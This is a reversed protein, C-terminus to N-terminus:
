RSSKKPNTTLYKYLNSSFIDNKNFQADAFLSINHKAFLLLEIEVRKGKAEFIKNLAWGFHKKNPRGNLQIPKPLEPFAGTDFYHMLASVLRQYDTSTMMEKFDVLWDEITSFTFENEQESEAGAQEPVLATVPNIKELEYELWNKYLVYTGYVISSLSLPRYDCCDALYFGAMGGDVLHIPPSTYDCCPGLYYGHKIRLYEHLHTRHELIGDVKNFAAKINVSTDAQEIFVILPDLEAKIMALELDPYTQFFKKYLIEFYAQGGVTALLEFCEAKTKVKPVFCDKQGAQVGLREADHNTYTGTIQITALDDADADEKTYYDIVQITALDDTASTNM